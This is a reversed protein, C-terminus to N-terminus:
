ETPPSTPTLDIGWGRGEAIPTMWHDSRLRFTFDRATRDDATYPEGVEVAVHSNPDRNWSEAMRELLTAIIPPATITVRAGAHLAQAIALIEDVEVAAPSEFPLVNIVAPM